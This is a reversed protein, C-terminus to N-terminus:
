RTKEASSYEKAYKEKLLKAGALTKPPTAHSEDALYHSSYQRLETIDLAAWPPIRFDEGAKKLEVEAIVLGQHPEKFEDIEWTKGEYAVYHRTKELVPVCFNKILREANEIPILFEEEDRVNAGDIIQSESKFTMKAGNPTIRIRGVCGDMPLYAQIIDETRTIQERWEDGVVLFKKEIEKGGTHAM